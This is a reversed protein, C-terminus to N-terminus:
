PAAGNRAVRERVRRAEDAARLRCRRSCYIQGGRSPVFRLGCRARSCSAQAPTAPTMDPQSTMGGWKDVAVRLVEAREAEELEELLLLVQLARPITRSTRSVITRRPEASVAARRPRKAKPRPSAPAPGETKEEPAIAPTEMRREKKAVYTNWPHKPDLQDHHTRCLGDKWHLRACDDRSCQEPKWETSSAAASDTAEFAKVDGESPAAERERPAACV